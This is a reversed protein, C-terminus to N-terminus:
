SPFSTDDGFHTAWLGCTACPHLDITLRPHLIIPFVRFEKPHALVGIPTDEFHHGRQWPAGTDLILIDDLDDPM